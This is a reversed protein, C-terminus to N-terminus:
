KNIEKKKSIIKLKGNGEYNLLKIISINKRRGNNDEITAINNTTSKVEYKIGNYIFKTGVRIVTGDSRKHVYTVDSDGKLFDKGKDTWKRVTDVFGEEKILEEKKKQSEKPRFEDKGEEISDSIAFDDLDDGGKEGDSPIDVEFNGESQKYLRVLKNYESKLQKIAEKKEQESIEEDKELEKLKEDDEMEDAEQDANRNSNEESKKYLQVLKNYQKKLMALDGLLPKQAPKEATDEKYTSKDVEGSGDISTDFDISTDEDKDTMKNWESNSLKKKLDKVKIALPGLIPKEAPKENSDEKYNDTVGPDNQGEVKEDFKTTTEDGLANELASKKKINGDMDMEFDKDAFADKLAISLYSNDDEDDLQSGPLGATIINANKPEIEKYEKSDLSAFTFVDRGNLYPLGDNDYADIPLFDIEFNNKSSETLLQVESGKAFIEGNTAKKDISLKIFKM